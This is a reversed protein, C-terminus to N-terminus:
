EFGHAFLPLEAAVVAVNGLIVRGSADRGGSQLQIQPRNTARAPLSARLSYTGPALDAPVLATAQLTLPAGPHLARLDDAFRTSWRTVGSTDVLELQLEYQWYIPASGTNALAVTVPIPSGAHIPDPLELRDLHLNYGLARRISALATAFGPEEHKGAPGLVSFHYQRILTEIDAQRSVWVNKQSALPSEGSVPNQQWNDRAGPSQNAIAWEMNWDGSDDCLPMAPSFLACAGTFSPFYDEHFGFETNGVDTARPYRTQMPTQVFAQAYHDRIAQKTSSSPELSECGTQHWEGWLGLLGIQIATVRADGDYRAAFADILQEMQTLMNPHNWAPARGPGDGNCSTYDTGVINFPAQELFLPYDRELQGGSYYQSIGSAPGDPYDAVLRLVFTADPYVAQIPALHRQEFGSWDFSQDFPEVERWPVYVHFIRTGYFNDTGGDAAFTTGWLMFGKHPNSVDDSTRPPLFVASGAVNASLVLASTLIARLIKMSIQNDSRHQAM